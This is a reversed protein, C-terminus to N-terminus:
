AHMSIYVEDLGDGLCWPGYATPMLPNLALVAAAATAALRALRWSAKVRHSALSKLSQCSHRDDQATADRNVNVTVDLNVNMPVPNM